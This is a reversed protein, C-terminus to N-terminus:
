LDKWMEGDWAQWIRYESKMEIDVSTTECWEEDEDDTVMEHSTIKMGTWLVSEMEPYNEFDAEVHLKPCNECGYVKWHGSNNLFKMAEGCCKDM